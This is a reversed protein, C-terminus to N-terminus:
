GKSLIIDLGKFILGVRYLEMYRYLNRLMCNIKSSLNKHVFSNIDMQRSISCEFFRNTWSYKVARKGCQLDRMQYSYTTHPYFGARYVGFLFSERYGKDERTVMIFTGALM